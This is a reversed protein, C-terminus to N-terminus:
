QLQQPWQASAGLLYASAEAKSAFSYCVVEPGVVGRRTLTPEGVGAFFTHSNKTWFGHPHDRSRLCIYICTRVPPCLVAGERDRDGQLAFYAGRGARFSAALRALPTWERVSTLRATALLPEVPSLDLSLLDAPTLAAQLAIDWEPTWARPRIDVVGSSSSAAEPAEPEIEPVVVFESEEAVTGREGLRLSLSQLASIVSEISSRLSRDTSM